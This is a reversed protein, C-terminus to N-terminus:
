FFDHFMVLRIVLLLQYRPVYLRSTGIAWKSVKARVDSADGSVPNMSEAAQRRLNLKATCLRGEYRAEAKEDDHDRAEYVHYNAQDETHCFPQRSQSQRFVCSFSSNLQPIVAICLFVFLPGVVVLAKNPARM